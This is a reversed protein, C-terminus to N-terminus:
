SGGWIEKQWGKENTVLLSGGEGEEVKTRQVMVGSGTELCGEVGDRKREISSALNGGKEKKIVRKVSRGKKARIGRQTGVGPV